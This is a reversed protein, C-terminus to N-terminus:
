AAGKPPTGLKGGTAIWIEEPTAKPKAELERLKERRRRDLAELPDEPQAEAKPSAWSPRRLSRGNQVMAHIRNRFTKLWQAKKEGAGGGSLWYARFDEVQYAIDDPSVGHTKAIEDIVEQGPHWDAPITTPGSRTRKTQPPEAPELMLTPGGPPPAIPPDPIPIPIPDPPM